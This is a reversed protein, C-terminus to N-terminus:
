RRGPRSTAPAPVQEAALEARERELREADEKTVAALAENYERLEDGELLAKGETRIDTARASREIIAADRRQRDAIEARQKPTGGACLEVAARIDGVLLGPMELSAHAWGVMEGWYKVRVAEITREVTIRVRDTRGPAYVLSGVLRDAVLVEHDHRAQFWVRRAAAWVAPDDQDEAERLGRDAERVAALAQGQVAERAARRAAVRLRGRYAEVVDSVDRDLGFIFISIDRPETIIGSFEDPM